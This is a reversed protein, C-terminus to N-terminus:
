KKLIEKIKDMEPHSRSGGEIYEEYKNCRHYKDPTPPRYYSINPRLCFGKEKTLFRCNKCKIRHFLQQEKEDEKSLMKM